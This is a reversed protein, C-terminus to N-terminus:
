EEEIYIIKKPKKNALQIIKLLMFVFATSIVIFGFNDIINMLMKNCIYTMGIPIDLRKKTLIIISPYDM